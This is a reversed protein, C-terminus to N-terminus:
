RRRGGPQLRAVARSSARRSAAQTPSTPTIPPTITQPAYTLTFSSGSGDLVSPSSEGQTTTDYGTYQPGGGGPVLTIANAGWHSSSISGRQGRTTRAVANAFTEAGFDALPLAQCDTGNGNCESPAEVIWDASTLDLPSDVVTKVFSKRRTRDTVALTVRHRVVSVRATMLDGPHVTMRVGTSPAPVLEYWVSSVEQGNANCDAETGIQELAQSNLNYGGLGVWVASYTTPDITCNAVPQTWQAAVYRFDVGGGHAVYGSWNTSTSSDAEAVPAGFLALAAALLLSRLIVSRSVTYPTIPRDSAVTSGKVQGNPATM